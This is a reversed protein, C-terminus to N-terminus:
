QGPLPFGFANGARVISHSIRCGGDDNSWTSQMAFSGTAFAVNAAAGPGTSVWACKDADEEGDTDTWGGAPNQDTVTEAYEHGAVITVGDLTGANGANVSSQGCGTGADTIYPLNTFAVDGVTSTVAGGTLGTDGNWDHWACFGAKPTNFGDPTTGHASVIVYQANRNAAPTTNGFHSAAAVGIVGLEHGTASSPAASRTDAWVGALSGGTPYGVHPVNPPCLMSGKQVGECYQTLVGSWRENVTGIGKFLQQVRAAMGVPDNSFTLDGKADTGSQGWQSGYFVLYVKPAGTTVGIKDVGGGYQLPGSGAQSQPTSAHTSRYSRIQDNVLRTPTVGRRYPHGFSPSYPNAAAGGAGASPPPGTTDTTSDPPEVPDAPASASPAASGAASTAPAPASASTAKPGCAATLLAASIVAGVVVFRKM